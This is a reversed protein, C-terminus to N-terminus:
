NEAERLREVITQKATMSYVILPVVWGVLVFIPTVFGIPALTLRYSFFWFMSNLVRGALPDLLLSLVFATFVAGLTYFLGEMILMGKLQKGTMGISQLMAFERKRTIIGTLIANVFNLVGILGIIFSLVGGLILFLDRFGYFEEAYTMKSEYDYAPNVKTTYEALFNEMAPTMEDASDFAYLMVDSTGTDQIFTQDNLIFEDKGSYRYSLSHPVVVLAAVEYEVERYRVARTQYLEDYGIEDFNEYIEGTEPNYYELEEVYRLTVRDGIEAWHSDMHVNGYDDDFYVAAISRSGPEELRSLDGEVVRLKGLAYSEMGYLQVNDVVMGDSTQEYLELMRNITEEDTWRGYHMRFAEETIYEEVISTRGYIKGGDLVGGQSLIADITQPEVAMDKNWHVGPQFQGAYAVIFDSVVRNGLYKNMDFGNALMVTVNLLVIALSMSLVTVITKSRSRKLNARAMDLLSIGKGTRRVVKTQVDSQTYRVAEVPSIRAAMRGPKGCSLMVTVLSFVAAAVFIWPNVSITDEKVGDMRALVQPTLVAGILWGLLCGIPIGLLSLTMAQYRVIRKMQRGTTGITKLLGYLRIDGVVSIQFVNYIILYGTFIILLLFAVIAFLTMPDMSDSLQSGTYGWNVGIDIYNDSLSRDETQYGHNSLITKLNEEIHMADSFMVDMNWSGFNDETPLTIKLEDLIANVRSEPILILKAISIEDTEWWGCLTFTQTTERGEVDFTVSFETGLQPEIGLLQLIKYDVAAEETGEEPLRGEVPDCYMWHAVNADSYGIEVYNKHFPAETPMGVVRRVGYEKILPDERLEEYQEQTLYKFGGHSYGGVQRFNSEQFAQNMSMAITFFATFLITTLAIAIVAILNRTGSAKLCKRSLRIICRRNSVQVM